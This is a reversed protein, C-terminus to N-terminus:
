EEGKVARALARLADIENAADMILESHQWHVCEVRRLKKTDTMKM